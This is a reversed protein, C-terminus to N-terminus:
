TGEPILIHVYGVGPGSMMTLQQKKKRILRAPSHCLHTMNIPATVYTNGGGCKMDCAHNGTNVQCAADAAELQRAEKNFRNLRQTLHYSLKWGEHVCGRSKKEESLDQGDSGMEASIALSQRKQTFARVPGSFWSQTPPWWETELVPPGHVRVFLIQLCSGEGAQRCHVFTHRRQVHFTEWM